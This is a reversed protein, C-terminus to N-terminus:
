THPTDRRQDPRRHPTYKGLHIGPAHGKTDHDRHAKGIDGQSVAGQRGAVTFGNRRRAQRNHLQHQQGSGHQRHTCATDRRQWAPVHQTDGDACYQYEHQDTVFGAGRYAQQRFVREPETGRKARKVRGSAQQHDPHAALNEHRIKQLVQM